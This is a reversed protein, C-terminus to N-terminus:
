FLHRQVKVLSIHAYADCDSGSLKVRLGDIEESSLSEELSNRNCRAGSERYMKCM